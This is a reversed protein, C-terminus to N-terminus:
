KSCVVRILQEEREEGAQETELSYSFIERGTKAELRRLLKGNDSIVLIDGVGKMFHADFGLDLSSESDDGHKSAQLLDLTSTSSILSSSNTPPAEWLLYGTLAHHLRVNSATPGSLTLIVDATTFFAKIPDTPELM